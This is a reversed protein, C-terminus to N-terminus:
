LSVSARGSKNRLSKPRTITEREATVGLPGSLDGRLSVAGDEGGGGGWGEGGEGRGKWLVTLSESGDAVEGRECM